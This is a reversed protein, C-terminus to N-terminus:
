QRASRLTSLRERSISDPRKEHMSTVPWYRSRGVSRLSAGLFPEIRRTSVCEMSTLVPSRVLVSIQQGSVLEAERRAELVVGVAARLIESFPLSSLYMFGPSKAFSPRGSIGNDDARATEHALEARGVQAPQGPILRGQVGDRRGGLGLHRGDVAGEEATQVELDDAPHAQLDVQIGQVAVANDAAPRLGCM